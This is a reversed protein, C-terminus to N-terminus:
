PKQGLEKLAAEAALRIVDRPSSISIAKQIFPISNRSGSLGLSRIAEARVLYSDDSLFREQLFPALSSDRLEGLARVASVRVLSKPDSAREMFFPKLDISRLTSLVRLAERRVAWFTDKRASQRLAELVGPQDLRKELQGAAWLRGIVDDHKLQYLLEADSKPFKLEKLLFNGEDFRVLLPSEPCDLTIREERNVIWVSHTTKGKQTVVSVNVPTQFIPVGNTTDQEQVIRLHIKRAKADWTYDVRFEPHGPKFIWQEFFWDLVQGTSERIAVLLDHTDVPQYAHKKLFHTMARRFNEEGMTWRLLHLVAAGKQYTHADFNQNPFEWRDFVIPRRYKTRAENLYQNKKNELNLAGEDEGLTHKSYLYEGYTAFSENIWTHSWDRMTVLDGWWQHAAEHAVLWHSPFDQEANEDHIISEGVVTATTSEAGGSIGPITIQDYKVWPYPVGYEREFFALIQPTRSFSRHANVVDKPYVWYNIPLSGLSDRLIVYPGAVLVFLYTSHPQDQYWQFTKTRESHNERVDLLRGNSLVSYDSRVTAIVESTAKDNPHDYCPFWHRAGTPFSLTNILRPHEPTEPKFDLGLDYGKPMGYKEPDVDIGEGHYFVTLSLTDGYRYSKRFNVNLKGGEHRFALAKGEQDIVRDVRYTEADFSCSSFEDRLPSLVITCEGWLSKTDEDFRLAIRYHVADYDRSREWQRPRSYVDVVQPFLSEQVLVALIFLARMAKKRM